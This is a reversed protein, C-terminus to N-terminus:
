AMDRQGLQDEYGAIADARRVNREVGGELYRAAIGAESLAAAAGQSVEHGHVCYVVVASAKPLSKAWARVQDPERRLAGSIMSDAEQFAARRRVDILIPPKSGAIAARLDSSSIANM